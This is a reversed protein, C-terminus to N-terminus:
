GVEPVIDAICFDVYEQAAQIAAAVQAFFDDLPSDLSPAGLRPSVRAGGPANLLSTANLLFAPSRMLAAGGPALSARPAASGRSLFAVPAAVTPYGSPQPPLAAGGSQLQKMYAGFAALLCLLLVLNVSAWM